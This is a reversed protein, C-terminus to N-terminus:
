PNFLQKLHSCNVLNHLHKYINLIKVERNRKLCLFIQVRTISIFYYRKEKKGVRMQNCM